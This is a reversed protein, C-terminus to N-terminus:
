VLVFIASEISISISVDSVSHKEPDEPDSYLKKLESFAEVFLNSVATTM